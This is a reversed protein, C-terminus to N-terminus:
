ITSNYQAWLRKYKTKRTAPTWPKCSLREVNKMKNDLHAEADKMAIGPNKDILYNCISNRLIKTTHLQSNLHNRKGTSTEKYEGGCLDCFTYVAEKYDKKLADKRALYAKRDIAKRRKRKEEDTLPLFGTPPPTPLVTNTFQKATLEAQLAEFAKAEAEKVKRAEEAAAEEAAEEAEWKAEEAAAQAMEKDYDSASGIKNDIKERTEVAKIQAIKIEMALFYDKRHSNWTDVGNGTSLKKVLSKQPTDTPIYDWVDWELQDLTNWSDNKKARLHYPMEAESNYIIISM